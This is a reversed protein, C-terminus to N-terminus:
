SNKAAKTKDRLFIHISYLGKVFFVASLALFSSIIIAAHLVNAHALSHDCGCKWKVINSLFKRKEEKREERWSECKKVEHLFKKEKKECIKRKDKLILKIGEQHITM